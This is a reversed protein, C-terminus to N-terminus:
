LSSVWPEGQDATPTKKHAGFAGPGAQRPKVRAGGTGGRGPRPQGARGRGAGDEATGAQGLQIGAATTGAQGPQIGAPTKRSAPLKGIVPDLFVAYDALFEERM